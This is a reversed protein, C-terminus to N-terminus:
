PFSSDNRFRSAFYSFMSSVCNCVCWAYESLCLWHAPSKQITADTSWVHIPISGRLFPLYNQILAFSSPWRLFTFMNEDYVERFLFEFADDGLNEPTSVIEKWDICHSHSILYKRSEPLRFHQNYVTLSGSWEAFIITLNVNFTDELTKYMWVDFVDMFIVIILSLFYQYPQSFILM